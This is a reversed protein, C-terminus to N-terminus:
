LAGPIQQLLAVDGRSLGRKPFEENGFAMIAQTGPNGIVGGLDTDRRNADFDAFPLRQRVHEGLPCSANWQFHM